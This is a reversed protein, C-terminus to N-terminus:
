GGTAAPADPSQALLERALTGTWWQEVREASWGREVTLTRYVDVTCLAAYVDAATRPDVGPRLVGPPWSTFVGTRTEDARRRGDAYFTALEPESRGAERVLVIVEGAREFLRRDFAAMAALQGAPEVGPAELAALLRGPEASLDAADALARALGTKNGYVAYVTPVSVGAERAVDRVTTATWGRDLFLHRAARAIDARTVEAQAARRLSGYPRKAPEGEPEGVM